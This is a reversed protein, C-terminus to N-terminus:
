GGQVCGTNFSVMMDTLLLFLPSSSSSVQHEFLGDHGFMQVYREPIVPFFYRGITPKDADSFRACLACKAAPLSEVLDQITHTHTHTHTHILVHVCIRTCVFVCTCPM